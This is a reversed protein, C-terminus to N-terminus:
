KKTVFHSSPVAVEKSNAWKKPLFYHPRQLELTQEQRCFNRFGFM